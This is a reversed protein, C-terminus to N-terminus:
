LYKAKPIVVQFINKMKQYIILLFILYLIGRKEFLSPYKTKVEFFIINKSVGKGSSLLTPLLSVLTPLLFSFVGSGRQDLTIKRDFIGSDNIKKLNQNIKKMMKEDLKLIKDKKSLAKNIEHSVGISLGSLGITTAIKLLAPKIMNSAMSLLSGIGDGILNNQKKKSDTLKCEIFGQEILQNFQTKNLFNKYKGNKNIKSKIINLTPNKFKQIKDLYKKLFNYGIETM